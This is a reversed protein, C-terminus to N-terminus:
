PEDDVGVARRDDRGPGRRLRLLLAARAPGRRPAPGALANWTTNLAEWLESSVTERAGRANERAALLAGAIAASNTRDFALRDLVETITSREPGPELGMISLLSRCSADEDIWPDELIRHVYVDLIRATDDAREVYRGIWFLSEAIGASCPAAGENSSGAPVRGRPRRSKAPRRAPAPSLPLGGAAARLTRRGPEEDAALVWTDKSGGGQSSNVVLEGEPLAVRTLGGPLVWVDDGDNVAFPRLDVHRPRSGTTSWPRRRHVACRGAARDLRAPRRGGAQPARGADARRGRPGIVIGKGGSGDVPKVVLEDLRDLVEALEDRDELRYTDVNALM